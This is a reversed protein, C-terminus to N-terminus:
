QKEFISFRWMLLIDKRRWRGRSNWSCIKILRACGSTSRSAIRHSGIATMVLCNRTTVHLSYWHCYSRQHMSPICFRLPLPPTSRSSLESLKLSRLSRSRLPAPATVPAPADDVDDTKSTIIKTLLVTIETLQLKLGDVQHQLDAVETQQPQMTQPADPKDALPDNAVPTATTLGLADQLRVQRAKVEHSGAAASHDIPTRPLPHDEPQMTMSGEAITASLTSGPAEQLLRAEAEARDRDRQAKRAHMPTLAM